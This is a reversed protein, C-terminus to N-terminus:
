QATLRGSESAWPKWSIVPAGTKPHRVPNGSGDKEPSRARVCLDRCEGQLRLRRAYDHAFQPADYPKCLQVVRKGAMIKDTHKAVAEEWETPTLDVYVFDDPVPKGTKVRKRTSTKRLAETMAFGRTMGFVSFTSM